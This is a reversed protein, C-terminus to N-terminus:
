PEKGSASTYNSSGTLTSSGSSSAHSFSPRHLVGSALKLVLSEGSKRSPQPQPSGKVAQQSLPAPFVLERVSPPPSNTLQPRSGPPPTYRSSSHSSRRRHASEAHKASSAEGRDDIETDDPPSESSCHALAQLLLVFRSHAQALQVLQDIRRQQSPSPFFSSLTTLALTPYVHLPTSQSIVSFFRTV